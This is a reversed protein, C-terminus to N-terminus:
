SAVLPNRPDRHPLFRAFVGAFYPYYGIQNTRRPQRIYPSIYVLSIPPIYM